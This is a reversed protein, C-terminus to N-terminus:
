QDFQFVALIIGVYIIFDVINSRRYYNVRSITADKDM